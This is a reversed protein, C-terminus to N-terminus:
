IYIIEIYYFLFNKNRIAYVFKTFNVGNESYNSKTERLLNENSKTNVLYRLVLTTKKM